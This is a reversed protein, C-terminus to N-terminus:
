DAIDHTAFQLCVAALQKAYEKTQAVAARNSAKLAATQTDLAESLAALQERLQLTEAERDKALQQTVALTQAHHKAELEQEPSGNNLAKNHAVSAPSVRLRDAKENPKVILTKTFESEWTLGGAQRLAMLTDHTCTAAGHVSLTSAGGKEVLFTIAGPAVALADIAPPLTVPPSAAAPPPPVAARHGAKALAQQASQKDSKQHWTVSSGGAGSTNGEGDVLRSSLVTNSTTPARAWSQTPCLQKIGKQLLLAANLVSRVGPGKTLLLGEVLATARQHSAAAATVAAEGSVPKRLADVTSRIGKLEGEYEELKSALELLAQQEELKAAQKAERTELSKAARAESEPTNRLVGKKLNKRTVGRAAGNAKFKANCDRLVRADVAAEVDLQTVGQAKQTVAKSRVRAWWELDLDAQFKVNKLLENIEAVTADTLYLSRTATTQKKGQSTSAKPGGTGDGSTEEGGAM